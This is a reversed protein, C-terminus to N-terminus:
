PNVHMWSIALTGILLGFGLCYAAMELWAFAAPKERNRLLVLLLVGMALVISGMAVQQWFHDLSGGHLEAEGWVDLLRKGRAEYYLIFTFAFICAALVRRQYPLV